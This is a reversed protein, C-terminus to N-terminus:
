MFYCNIPTISERKDSQHFSTQHIVPSFGSPYNFSGADNSIKSMNSTNNKHMNKQIMGLIGNLGKGNMIKAKYEDNKEIVNGLKFNQYM